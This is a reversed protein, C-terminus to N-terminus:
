LLEDITRLLEAPSSVAVVRAGGFKHFWNDFAGCSVEWGKRAYVINTGGFYSSLYSSGGLVSVFAECNAYLRLQLENFGLHPHARRLDQITIIDPYAERLAEIDGIERMRQADSVMDSSHPRNYVVQYRDRLRGVTALLLPVDLGNLTSDGAVTPEPSTKNSVVCLKKPWRFTENAFVTKYPPPRWRSEDLTKPFARRDLRLWAPEGISYETIPAYRRPGGREEHRPSFYYLDRTDASSETFRLRGMTHLWYAYPVVALLEFAFEGFYRTGTALFEDCAGGAKEAIAAALPFCKASFCAVSDIRGAAAQEWL